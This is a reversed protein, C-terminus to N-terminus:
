EVVPAYTHVGQGCPDTDGAPADAHVGERAATGHLADDTPEALEETSECSTVNGGAIFRVEAVGSSTSEDADGSFESPTSMTIAVGAAQAAHTESPDLTRHEVDREKAM